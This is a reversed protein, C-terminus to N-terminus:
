EKPILRLLTMESRTGLRIPSMITGIGQSVYIDMDKYKYLGSNYGFMLKAIFTLPFIQGAHTHGALLLDTGNEQMYNVGDPRHHLVVAPSNPNIDLDNLTKKITQSVDSTHMDFSNEDPLMNNLGIIQLEGFHVIENLLVTTNARKMQEIVTELGVHQDHNGYVFYHPIDLTRFASLVDENTGFHTKSDFMDGTNFVVDPNIEKIKQVIKNISKKGRFNGLHVDTLHIARIEQTLGQIPITIEKVKISYANWVGYVTLLLTLGLSIACRIQPSIKFILYILDSVAVALLLFILIGMITGGIMFLTKGVPNATTSFAMMATLSVALLAVFTWTWVKKSISPFYIAFRNSLYIVAGVLLALFAIFSLIIGLYKM